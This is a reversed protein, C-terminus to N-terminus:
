ISVSAKEATPPNTILMRNELDTQQAKSFSAATDAQRKFKDATKLAIDAHIREVEAKQGELMVQQQMQQMPDPPAPPPNMIQIIQQIDRQRINLYKAAVPWLNVGFQIMLTALDVMIKQQEEKQTATEPSEGIFVEYELAMDDPMLAFAGKQDSNKSYPIARGPNNEALMKIYTVLLRANEKQYLDVSDFYPALTTSVQKIRQKELLASVDKNSSSALFEPNVGVVDPMAALAQQMIGDYGTVPVDTKKPQIKNNQLAGQKVKIAAKTSVYEQEFKQADIVADEEYFVGGKSNSAIIYLLETFAKNAYRAPEKLSAVMGFWANNRDDFDGTKYQRTFGDQHAARTRKIIKKGSCLVTYYVKKQTEVFDIKEDMKELTKSIVSKLRENIFLYRQKPDFAKIEELEGEDKTTDILNQKIFQLAQSIRNVREPENITYLPNECRYYREYECCQYHTIVVVNNNAPDIEFQVANVIGGYPYFVPQSMKGDYDVFDEETLGFLVKADEKYYKKERWDYRRDLLNTATALPDYGQELPHVREWIVQGDPDVSDDITTDICGLGCILMDRDQQTEVTSANGIERFYDSSNNLYDSRAQQLTSDLDKAQYEPKRRLQIMFGLVGNVFPKVRNFVVMKRVNGYSLEGSYYMRDGAYFAFDTKMMRYQYALGRKSKTKDDAIKKALDHDSMKALSRSKPEKGATNASQAELPM